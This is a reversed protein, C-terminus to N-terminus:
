RGPHTVGSTNTCEATTHLSDRLISSGLQEGTSVNSDPDDSSVHGSHRFVCAPQVDGDRYIKVIVEYNGASAARISAGGIQCVAIMAWVRPRAAMRGDALITTLLPWYAEPQRLSEAITTIRAMMNPSSLSAVLEQLSPLRAEAM